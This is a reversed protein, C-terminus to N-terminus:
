TNEQHQVLTDLAQRFHRLLAEAHSRGLQSRPYVLRLMLQGSAM